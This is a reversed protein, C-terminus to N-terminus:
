HRKQKLLTIEKLYITAVEIMQKYKDGELEARRIFAEFDEVYTTKGVRTLEPKNKNLLRKLYGTAFLYGLEKPEEDLRQSIFGIADICIAPSPKTNKFLSYHRLASKYDGKRIRFFAGDLHAIPHGTYNQLLDACLKEAGNIDGNHYRSLALSSLIDVDKKNLAYGKELMELSAPYERKELLNAGKILYLSALKETTAIKLLCNENSLGELIKEFILIGANAGRFISGCVGVIFLSFNAINDRELDLDIKITKKNINFMREKSVMATLQSHVIKAILNDTTNKYTFFISVKENSNKPKATWVVLDVKSGEVLKGVKRYDDEKIKKVEFKIKTSIGRIKNNCYKAIEASQTDDEICIGIKVQRRCAWYYIFRKKIHVFLPTIFLVLLVSLVILGIRVLLPIKTVAEPILGAIIGVYGLYELLKKM